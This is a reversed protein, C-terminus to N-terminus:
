FRQEAVYLMERIEVQQDSDFVARGHTHYIESKTGNSVLANKVVFTKQDGGLGILEDGYLLDKAAKSTIIDARIRQAM